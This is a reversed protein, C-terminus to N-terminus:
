LGDSNKDGRPHAQNYMQKVQEMSNHTYIQTAALSSHGLLEKISNLDAGRNLLHTAFSHRLMHPSRKEIGSVSSLYSKVLNYVFKPSLKKEKASVFVLQKPGADRSQQQLHWYERLRKLMQPLLPVRREKKGKGLFLVASEEWLIQQWQLDILESLRCGTSYFFEMIIGAQQEAETQEALPREMHLLLTKMEEESLVHLVKKQEKPSQVLAAPNRDQWGQKQSFKYFSRLSSLKRKISSREQQAKMMEVVWGRILPHEVELLDAQDQLDAFAMFQELDSQYAKVTHASFRRQQSLYQLFNDLYNM